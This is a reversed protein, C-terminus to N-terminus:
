RPGSPELQRIHPSAHGELLFGLAALFREQV